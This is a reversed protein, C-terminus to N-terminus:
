RELRKESAFDMASHWRRVAGGRGPGHPYGGSEKSVHKVIQITSGYAGRCFQRHGQYPQNCDTVTVLSSPAFGDSGRLQSRFSIQLSWQPAQVKPLHLSYPCAALWSVQGGWRQFTRELSLPPLTHAGVGVTEPQPKKRRAAEGATHPLGEEGRHPFRLVPPLLGHHRGCCQKGREELCQGVHRAVSSAADRTHGRTTKRSGHAV